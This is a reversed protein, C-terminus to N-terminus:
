KNINVYKIYNELDELEEENMKLMALNIRCKLSIITEKEM